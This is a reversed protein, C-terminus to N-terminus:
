FMGVVRVKIEGFYIQGSAAKLIFSSGMPCSKNAAIKITHGDIVVTLNDLVEDSGDIDWACEIDDVVVGNNTFSANFVSVGGGSKVSKNGLINCMYGDTSETTKNTYIYDAIGLEASDTEANYADQELRITIYGGGGGSEYIYSNADVFVVKYVKPKNAITELIFRHDLDILSTESDYPLKISFERNSYDIRKSDSINTSLVNSIVSWREIIRGDTRNQWRLKKNCRTMEGDCTLDEDADTGTVLWRTRGWTIIEGTKVKESPLMSFNSVHEEKTPHVLIHTCRTGINVKKLSPSDIAKENFSNIARNIARDRGTEGQQLLRNVYSNWNFM